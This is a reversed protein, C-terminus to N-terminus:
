NEVSSFIKGEEIADLSVRHGVLDGVWNIGPAKEAPYFLWPILSMVAM